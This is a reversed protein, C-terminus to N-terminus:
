RRHLTCSTGIIAPINGVICKESRQKQEKEELSSAPIGAATFRIHADQAARTLSPEIDERLFAKYSRHEYRYTHHAYLMFGAYFGGFGLLLGIVASCLAPMPRIEISLVRM